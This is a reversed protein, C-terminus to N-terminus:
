PLSKIKAIIRSTSWGPRMPVREVRGGWAGVEDAGVIDAQAYESGKVLVSPKVCLITELPTPEPFITVASVPRLACLLAARAEQPLIPRGPGKLRRTSEDSNIAVLLLDGLAAAAMLSELHGPHLVDFCGNTFVISHGRRRQAAAWAALEEPDLVPATEHEKM